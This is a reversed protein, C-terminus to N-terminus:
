GAVRDSALLLPGGLLAVLGGPQKALREVDDRDAVGEGIAAVTAQDAGVELDTEDRFVDRGDRGAAAVHWAGSGCQAAGVPLQRAASRGARHPAQPPIEPPATQPSSREARSRGPTGTSAGPGIAFWRSRQRATPSSCTPFRRLRRESGSIASRRLFPTRLKTPDWSAGTETSSPTPTSAAAGCNRDCGPASARYSIARSAPSRRRATNQSPTPRLIPSCDYATTGPQPCSSATLHQPPVDPMHARSGLEHQPLGLPPNPRARRGGYDGM